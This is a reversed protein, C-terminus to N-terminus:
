RSAGTVDWRSSQVLSLPRANGISLSARPPDYLALLIADARDPSRAGRRRMDAKSEVQVRGASDAKWTPACLQARERSGINLRVPGYVPDPEADPQVMLRFEWWMEARQNHYRSVKGAREAVNVPIITCPHRGEDAWAQLLGVVGWGVGIADVKVRAGEGDVGLGTLVDLVIGAVSVASTNRRSAHVVSVTRGRAVAVALEDGGDAAVDVGVRVPGDGEDACSVGEVWDPPVIARLTTRPFRAYVRAQVFPSDEGFENVVEDVWDRGVLNAGWAGVPEGTFAPTDFASIPIVKYAPSACAREFWSDTRDTPPNGLLLLRTHGGTMIAELAQGILHSLGGAEDVVILLHEAHVGQLATENYDHASFGDAVVIGDLKWETTLV